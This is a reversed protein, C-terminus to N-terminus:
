HGVYGKSADVSVEIFWYRPTVFPNSLPFMSHMKSQTLFSIGADFVENYM